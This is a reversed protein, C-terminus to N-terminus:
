LKSFLISKTETWKRGLLQACEVRIQCISLWFFACTLYNNPWPEILKQLIIVRKSQIFPIKETAPWTRFQDHNTTKKRCLLGEQVKFFLLFKWNGNMIEGVTACIWSLNSMYICRLKPQMHPCGHCSSM